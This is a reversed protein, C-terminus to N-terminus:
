AGPLARKADYRLWMAQVSQRAEIFTGFDGRVLTAIPSRGLFPAQINSLSPWIGADDNGFIAVLLNYIDVLAAIRLIENSNLPDCARHEWLRRLRDNSMGLLAAANTDSLRWVQSLRAFAAVAFPTLIAEADGLDLLVRHMEYDPWLASDGDQDDFSM